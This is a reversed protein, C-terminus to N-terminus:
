AVSQVDGNALVVVGAQSAAVCRRGCIEDTSTSSISWAAADPRLTASVFRAFDGASTQLSSAANSREGIYDSPRFAMAIMGARRPAITHGPGTSRATGCKYRILYMCM